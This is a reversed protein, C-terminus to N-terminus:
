MDENGAIPWAQGFSAHMAGCNTCKKGGGSISWVYAWFRQFCFPCKIKVRTRGKESYRDIVTFERRANPSRNYEGKTFLPKKIDEYTPDIANARATMDNHLRVALYDRPEAKGFKDAHCSYHRDNGIMSGSRGGDGKAGFRPQGPEIPKSCLDCNTM